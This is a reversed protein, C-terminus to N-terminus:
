PRAPPPVLGGAPVLVFGRSDLSASWGELRDLLLPTPPGALGLAGGRDHARAELAALRDNIPGRGPPDDLVLDVARAGDPLAAVERRPSPAPTSTFFIKPM